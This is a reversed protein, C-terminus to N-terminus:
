YSIARIKCGELTELLLRLTSQLCQSSDGAKLTNFNCGLSTEPVQQHDLDPDSVAGPGPDRSWAGVWGAEGAVGSSQRGFQPRKYFGGLCATWFDAKCPGSVPFCLTLCYVSLSTLEDSSPYAGNNILSKVSGLLCCGSPHPAPVSGPKPSRSRRSCGTGGDTPHAAM